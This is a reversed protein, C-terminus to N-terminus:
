YTILLGGTSHGIHLYSYFIHVDSSMLPLTVTELSPLTNSHGNWFLKLLLNTYGSRSLPLADACVLQSLAVKELFAHKYDARPDLVPYVHDFHSIHRCVYVGSFISVVPLPVQICDLGYFNQYM